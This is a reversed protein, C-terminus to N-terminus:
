CSADPPGTSGLVEDIPYAVTRGSEPDRAAVLGVARGEGDVVVGGSIGPIAEVDVIMMEVTGGYGQRREAAVVRGAEARFEGGPYGAVVVASGVIPRPGVELAPVGADAVDAADLRAADRELVRNGVRIRHETGEADRFTVARAGAVVHQNTVARSGDPEDVVTASGQRSEGCGTAEVRMVSEQVTAALGPDLTPRRELQAGEVSAVPFSGPVRGDMWWRAVGISSAVVVLCAAVVGAGLRRIAVLEPFRM